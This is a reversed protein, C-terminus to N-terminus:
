HLLHADYIHLMEGDTSTDLIFTPYQMAFHKLLQIKTINKNYSTQLIYIHKLKYYTNHLFM